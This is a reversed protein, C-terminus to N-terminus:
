LTFTSAMARSLHDRASITPAAQAESDDERERKRSVVPQSSLAAKQSMLQHNAACLLRDVTRRIAHPDTSDFLPTTHAESVNFNEVTASDLNARLIDLQSKLLNANHDATQKAAALQKESEASAETAKQEAADARTKEEDCRQVMETLRAAIVTRQDEPLAEMVKELMTKEIESMIRDPEAEGSIVARKYAM